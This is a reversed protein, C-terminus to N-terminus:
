FWRCSLRRVEFSAYVQKNSSCNEFIVATAGLVARLGVADLPAGPAADELQVDPRSALPELYADFADLLRAWHILDGQPTRPSRPPPRSPNPHPRKPANSRFHDPQLPPRRPARARRWCSKAARRDGSDPPPHRHGHQPSNPRARPRRRWTRRQQADIHTGGQRPQTCAQQRGQVGAAATYQSVAAGPGQQSAAPPQFRAALRRCVKDSSWAFGELGKPLDPAALVRDIIADIAEPQLSRAPPPATLRSRMCSSNGRQGGGVAGGLPHGSVVEVKQGPKM